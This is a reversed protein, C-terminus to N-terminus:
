STAISLIFILLFLCVFFTKPINFMSSEVGKTKKETASPIPGIAVVKKCFTPKMVQKYSADIMCNFLKNPESYKIPKENNRDSIM